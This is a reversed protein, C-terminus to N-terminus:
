KKQSKLSDIFATKESESLIENAEPVKSLTILANDRRRNLERIEQATHKFRLPKNKVKEGMAKLKEIYQKEKTKDASQIKSRLISINYEVQLRMWFEASIGLVDEIKLAIEESINRKGKIIDSMRSPYISIDKAFNSKTLGRAKIEMDLVEGPHLLVDTKLEKENRKM